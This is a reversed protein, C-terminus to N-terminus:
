VYGSAPHRVHWVWLLRVMLEQIKDHHFLDYDPSTRYVDDKIQKLAKQDSEDLETESLNFYYMKVFNQYEDRKRMVTADRKERNLPMYKLLIKWVTSRLHKPVGQWSVKKLADMDVLVDGNLIKGFTYFVKEEEIQSQDQSNIPRYEEKKNYVNNINIKSTALQRETHKCDGNSTKKEENPTNNPKTAEKKSSRKFLKSLFPM